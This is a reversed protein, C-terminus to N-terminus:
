AYSLDGLGVASGNLLYIKLSYDGSPAFGYGAYATNVGLTVSSLWSGVKSVYMGAPYGTMVYSNTTYVTGSSENVREGYGQDYHIMQTRAVFHTYSTDADTDNVCRIVVLADFQNDWDDATLGTSVTVVDAKGVTKQSEALSFGTEYVLNMTEAGSGVTELGTIAEAMQDLTLAATGGTKSRIADAIATMKSNVSM